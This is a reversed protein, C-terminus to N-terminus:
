SAGFSRALYERLRSVPMGGHVCAHMGGSSRRVALVIVVGNYHFNRWRRSLFVSRRLGAAFGGFLERSFALARLSCNPVRLNSAYAYTCTHTRARARTHAIHSANTLLTDGWCATEQKYTVCALAPVCRRHARWVRNGRGLGALSDALGVLCAVTRGVLRGVSWEM